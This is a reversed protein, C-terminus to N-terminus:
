NPPKQLQVSTDGFAFSAKTDGTKDQSVVLQAQKGEYPTTGWAVTTDELKGHKLPLPSTQVAADGSITLSDIQRLLQRDRDAQQLFIPNNALGETVSTTHFNFKKHHDEGIRLFELLAKPSRLLQNVLTGGNSIEQGSQNFIAIDNFVEIPLSVQQTPLDRTAAFGIVVLTPTQSSTKFLLTSAGGFLRETSNEDLIELAVIHKRLDRAAEKAGETFGYRSYLLLINTPLRDHKGKMQEVWGVDAARKKENCEICILVPIGDVSSVICVDVERKRSKSDLLYQSDTVASGVAAHKKVLYVLRQFETSRQL